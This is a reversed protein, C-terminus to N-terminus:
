HALADELSQGLNMGMDISGQANGVLTALNNLNEMGKFPDPSNIGGAVMFGASAATGILVEGVEAWTPKGSAIKDVAKRMEGYNQKLKTLTAFGGSVSQLVQKMHASGDEVAKKIKAMSDKEKASLKDKNIREFEALKNEAKQSKDVIDSLYAALKHTTVERTQLGNQVQEVLTKARNITTMSNPLVLSNIATKGLEKLGVTTTRANEYQTQITRLAENLEETTTELTKRSDRILDFTAKISQATAAASAVTAVGLHLPATVISAVTAAGGVVTGTIAVGLAIKM